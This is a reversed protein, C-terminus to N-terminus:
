AAPKWAASLQGYEEQIEYGKAQLFARCNAHLHPGHMELFITPHFETITRVAGQLVDFEAGEVDIKIINPPRLRKEGHICTDLTTCPVLTEGDPSLRAMHPNFGAASFPLSGDRNCVATELIMCNQLDNLSIHRRLYKLNRPLPEFAYVMGSPGVRSSALMSYIGVNAGVDYVVSTQTVVNELARLRSVEYTGLWCANTGAGAVWRKGRLPGRLIRVETEPPVLSLPFRLLNALLKEM